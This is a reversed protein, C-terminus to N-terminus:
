DEEWWRVDGGWEEGSWWKLALDCWLGTVRGGKLIEDGGGNDLSWGPYGMRRNGECGWVGRKKLIHHCWSPTSDGIVERKWGDRMNLLIINVICIFFSAEGSQIITQLWTKSRYPRLSYNMRWLASNFPTGICSKCSGNDEALPRGVSCTCDMCSSATCIACTHNMVALLGSCVRSTAM